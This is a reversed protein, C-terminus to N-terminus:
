HIAIWKIYRSTHHMAFYNVDQYLLNCLYYEPYLWNLCLPPEYTKYPSFDYPLLM